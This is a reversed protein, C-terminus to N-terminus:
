RMSPPLQPNILTATQTAIARIAAPSLEGQQLKAVTEPYPIFEELRVRYLPDQGKYAKRWCKVYKIVQIFRSQTQALFEPPFPLTLLEQNEKPYSKVWDKGQVESGGKVYASVFFCYSFLRSDLGLYTTRFTSWGNEAAVPFTQFETFNPIIEGLQEWTGLDDLFAVM